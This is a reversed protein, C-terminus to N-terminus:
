VDASIPWFHTLCWCQNKIYDKVLWFKFILEHYHLKFYVKINWNPMFLFIIPTFGIFNMNTYQNNFYENILLYFKCNQCKEVVYLLYTLLYTLSLTPYWKVFYSVNWIWISVTKGFWPHYRKELNKVNSHLSYYM